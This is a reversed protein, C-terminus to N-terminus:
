NEDRNRENEYDPINLKMKKLLYTFKLKSKEPIILSQHYIEVYILLPVFSLNNNSKPLYIRYFFWYINQFLM